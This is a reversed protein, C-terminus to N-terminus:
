LCRHPQNGFDQSMSRSRILPWLGALSFIISEFISGHFIHSVNGGTYVLQGEIKNYSKSSRGMAYGQGVVV